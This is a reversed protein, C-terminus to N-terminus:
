AVQGSHTGGEVYDEEEQEEENGNNEESTMSIFKVSFLSAVALLAACTVFILRNGHRFADDHLMMLVICAILNLPVRFWNMVSTRSVEPVAQNRILTMAPFYMGVSVEIILFAVFALSYNVTGPHTAVVLIINALLAFVIAMALLRAVPVRQLHLIQFIASGIMICVMFSSFVIGLSAHIPDLIPTWLFVFIYMTSEFLSQIIGIIFIKMDTFIVKLGEGCTKSFRVKQTGYNEKWQSNVIIGSIILPPIALMFPSVPGFNLWEAFLNAIIGAVIALCGNWVTAQSFTVPIWERPFDHTERHEHVYWADFASFLLSTAVGGLIRGFILIGYNRSLKLLCGISYVITFFICLKKRGFRDAAIPAWTGLLVASAFGCVYLVAIQAEEFGYHSYLKYLYPGQLWDGLLAPFYAAFYGRQFQKFIPNNGISPERRTKIAWFQLGICLVGLVCFAFYTIVLM